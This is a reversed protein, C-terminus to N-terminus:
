SAIRGACGLYVWWVGEKAEGQSIPAWPGVKRALVAREAPGTGRFREGLLLEYVLVLAVCRGLGGAGSGPGAGAGEVLQSRELLPQLVPLHRLVECTVAYTAKKAQIHPALTLSKLTAGERQSADAALLREVAYAAQRHVQLWRERAPTTDQTGICAAPRFTM